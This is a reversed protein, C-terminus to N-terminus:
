KQTRFTEEKCLWIDEGFIVQSMDKGSFRKTTNIFYLHLFNLWTVYIHVSYVSSFMLSDHKM